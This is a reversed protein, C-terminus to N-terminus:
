VRDPRPETADRPVPEFDWSLPPRAVLEEPPDGLLDAVFGAPDIVVVRPDGHASRYVMAHAPVRAAVWDLLDALRGDRARVEWMTTAM